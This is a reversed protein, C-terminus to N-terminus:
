ISALITSEFYVICDTGSIWRLIKGVKLNTGVTLTFVLDDSAYVDSGVDAYDTVGAVSLKVAGKQRVKVKIDGASGTSNDAQKECFGAFTDTTVLPSIDGSSDFTVASGEFIVDTAAVPLNNFVPVLEAEYQRPTDAAATAM